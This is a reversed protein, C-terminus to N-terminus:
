DKTRLHRLWLDYIESRNAVQSDVYAKREEFTALHGARSLTENCAKCCTVLNAIQDTGGVSRAKVHDITYSWFMSLSTLFDLGCYRCKGGDREFAQKGTDRAIERLLDIPM